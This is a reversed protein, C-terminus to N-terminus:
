PEGRQPALEAQRDSERLANICASCNVRARKTTAAHDLGRVRQGCIALAGVLTDTVFHIM